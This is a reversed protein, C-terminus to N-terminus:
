LAHCNYPHQTNIEAGTQTFPSPIAEPALSVAKEVNAAYQGDLTYLVEDEGAQALIMFEQSGSGGIAGSDAQVPRYELGCREFIRCYARYMKEYSARM